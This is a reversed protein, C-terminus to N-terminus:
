TVFHGYQPNMFGFILQNKRWPDVSQNPLVPDPMYYGNLSLLDGPKVRIRLFQNQTLFCDRIVAHGAVSVEMVHTMEKELEAIILAQVSEPANMEHGQPLAPAAAWLEGGYVLSSDLRELFLHPCCGCEWSRDITYLNSLDLEHIEQRRQIGSEEYELSIPWLAM